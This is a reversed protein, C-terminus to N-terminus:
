GRLVRLPVFSFRQRVSRTIRITMAASYRLRDQAQRLAIALRECAAVQRTGHTVPCGRRRDPEEIVLANM